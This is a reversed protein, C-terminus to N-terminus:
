ISRMMNSCFLLVTFLYLIALAVSKFPSSFNCLRFDGGWSAPKHKKSKGVSGDANEPLPRKEFAAVDGSSSSPAPDLEVPYISHAPDDLVEGITGLSVLAESHVSWLVIQPSPGTWVFHSHSRELCRSYYPFINPHSDQLVGEIEAALEAPKFEAGIGGIEGAPYQNGVARAFVVSAAAFEALLRDVVYSLRVPQGGLLIIYRLSFKLLLGDFHGLAHSIESILTPAPKKGGYFRSDFARSLTIFIGLYLIDFFEVESSM